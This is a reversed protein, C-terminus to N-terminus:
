KCVWTTPHRPDPKAYGIRPLVEIAGLVLGWLLVLLSLSQARGTRHRWSWVASWLGGGVVVVVSALYAALGLGCRAEYPWFLMAVGLLLALGLRFAVGYFAARPTTAQPAAAPARGGGGSAGKQVPAAGAPLARGGGRKLDDDSLSALQKDIKAMEKDWDTM